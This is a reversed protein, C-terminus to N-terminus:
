SGAQSPRGVRAGPVIPIKGAKILAAIERISKGAVPNVSERAITKRGAIYAEISARAFRYEEGTVGRGPIRFWEFLNRHRALWAPSVHLETCVEAGTM